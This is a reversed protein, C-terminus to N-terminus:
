AIAPQSRVPFYESLGSLKLYQRVHSNDIDVLFTLGRETVAQRLALLIQLVCADVHEADGWDIAVEHALKSQMLGQKLLVAAEVRANGEIKVVMRNEEDILSVSPQAM